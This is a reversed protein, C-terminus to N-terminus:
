FPLSPVNKKEVGSTPHILIVKKSNHVFVEMAIELRQAAEIRSLFLLEQISM